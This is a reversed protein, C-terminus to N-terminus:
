QLTERKETSCILDPYGVMGMYVPLGMFYGRALGGEANLKAAAWVTLNWGIPHEGRALADAHQGELTEKLGM